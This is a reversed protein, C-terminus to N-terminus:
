TDTLVSPSGHLDARKSRPLSDCRSAPLLRQVGRDLMLVQESARDASVDTPTNILSYNSLSVGADFRNKFFILSIVTENRLKTCSSERVPYVSLGIIPYVGLIRTLPKVTLYVSSLSINLM